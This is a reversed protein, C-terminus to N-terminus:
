GKNKSEFLASAVDTSDADIKGTAKDTFNSDAEVSISDVDSLISDFASFIVNSTTFIVNFEPPVVDFATLLVDFTKQRFILILTTQELLYRHTTTQNDFRHM